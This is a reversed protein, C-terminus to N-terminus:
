LEKHDVHDLDSEAVPRGDSLMFGDVDDLVFTPVGDVKDARVRHFDADDVDSLAFAPRTDQQEVRVSVGDM